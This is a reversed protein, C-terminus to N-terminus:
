SKPYKEKITKITAHWADYGGHYMLDLQEEIPPYEKIRLEKYYNKQNEIEIKQWEEVILEYKISEEDNDWIVNNGVISYGGMPKLSLLALKLQKHNLQM